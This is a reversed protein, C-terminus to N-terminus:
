LLTIDTRKHARVRPRPESPKQFVADCALCPRAEKELGAEPAWKLAVEAIAGLVPLLELGKETLSYEVRPPSQPYSRRSVVSNRELKKLRATLTKTSLGTFAAHLELARRPGASLEHIIALMWQDDILKLVNEIRCASSSGM